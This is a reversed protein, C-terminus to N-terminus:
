AAELVSKGRRFVYVQDSLWDEMDLYGRNVSRVMGRFDDLDGWEPYPVVMVEHISSPLILLDTRLGQAITDLCGPYLAAVAGFAGNKVTLVYVRLDSEGDSAIRLAEQIQQGLSGTEGQQKLWIRNLVTELSSFQAPNKRNGNELAQEILKEGPVGWERILKRDVRMRMSDEDGGDIVVELVLALDSVKRFVQEKLMDENAPYNILRCRLNELVLNYNGLNKVLKEIKGGTVGGRKMVDQIGDMLKEMAVGKQYRDYFSELCVVPAAQSGKRRLTIGCCKVGNDKKLDLPYIACEGECPENMKAMIERRFGDITMTM